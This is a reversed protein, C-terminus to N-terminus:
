PLLQSLAHILLGVLGGILTGNIRIYQLDRAIAREVRETVTGPDWRRVTESILAAVEHRRAEILDSLATRLWENLADRVAPDALLSEGLAVMAAALNRRLQSDANAADERVRSRLHDWVTGVYEALQPQEILGRKLREARDRYEPSTRLAEVYESLMQTFRQRWAHEPDASVEAITEGAARILRGSIAEDIGLKQWLWATRERVRARIEPEAEGLFRQGQMLLEDVLAQHRNQETLTELLDAAIPAVDIRQLATTLNHHLFHRMPEDGLADLLRPLFQAAETAVRGSRAPDALWRGILTAFDVQNLKTRVVEATLFNREVFRGLAEGIRDKNAPIIATHPLPVGLPHRFLATVAFWDALGGVMAAECFARLYGIAPHAAEYLRAVVYVGAAVVLLGTARRKTRRLSELAPDEPKMRMKLQLFGVSRACRRGDPSSGARFTGPLTFGPIRQVNVFGRCTATSSCKDALV